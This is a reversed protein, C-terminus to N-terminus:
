SHGWGVMAKPLSKLFCARVEYLHLFILLYRQRHNSFQCHLFLHNFLRGRNTVYRPSIQYNSLSKNSLKTSFATLSRIKAESVQTQTQTWKCNPPNIGQWTLSCPPCYAFM